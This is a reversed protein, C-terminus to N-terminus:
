FLLSTMNLYYQVSKFSLEVNSVRTLFVESPALEGMGGMGTLFVHGSPIHGTPDCVGVFNGHKFRTKVEDINQFGAPHNKDRWICREM